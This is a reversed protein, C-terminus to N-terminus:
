IVIKANLLGMKNLPILVRHRIFFVMLCWFLQFQHSLYNKANDSCLTRISVGFQTKIEQYFNTFISFLKFRNKMLFLWTCRSYDDIFTVFYKSGLISEICRLDWIGFHVLAFPSSACSCVRDLFLNRTHKGLYCLEYLLCSLKFICCCRNFNPLALIVWSLM